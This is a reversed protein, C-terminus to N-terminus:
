KAARDTRSGHSFDIPAEHEPVGAKPELGISVKHRMFHATITSDPIRLGLAVGEKAQEVVIDWPAGKAHSIEVLTWTPLGAYAVVTKRVCDYAVDDINQCLPKREGTMADRGEARFSIPDSGASKFSKYAAPHVPGHQWAEFAGKVLPKGTRQLHLGHAFYLLKQLAVHTIASRGAEDLILNCVARPDYAM